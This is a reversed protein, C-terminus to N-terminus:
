QLAEQADEATAVIYGEYKLGTRLFNLIHPEDDVVLIRLEEEGSLSGPQRATHERMRTELMEGSWVMTPFASFARLHLPINLSTPCFPPNGRCSPVRMGPFARHSCCMSM